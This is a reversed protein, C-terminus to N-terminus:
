FLILESTELYINIYKMEYTQCLLAPIINKM